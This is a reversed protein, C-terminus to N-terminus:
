HSQSELKGYNSLTKSEVSFHDDRVKLCHALLDPESQYHKRSKPKLIKPLPSQEACLQTEKPEQTLYTEEIIGEEQSVSNISNSGYLDKSKVM